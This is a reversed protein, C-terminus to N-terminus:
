PELSPRPGTGDTCGSHLCRCLGNLWRSRGLAKIHARTCRSFLAQPQWLHKGFDTDTTSPHSRQWNSKFDRVKRRRHRPLVPRLGRLLCLLTVLLPATSAASAQDSNEALGEDMPFSDLALPVHVPVTFIERPESRDSQTTVKPRDCKGRGHSRPDLSLSASRHLSRNRQPRREMTRFLSSSFSSEPSSSTTSSLPPPLLTASSSALSSDIGLSTVTAGFIFVDRTTTLPITPATPPAFVFASRFQPVSQALRLIKIPDSKRRARARRLEQQHQRRGRKTSFKAPPTRMTHRRRLQDRKNECYDKVSAMHSAFRARELYGALTAYREQSVAAAASEEFAMTSLCVAYRIMELEGACDAATLSPLEWTGDYDAEACTIHCDSRWPNRTYNRPSSDPASPWEIYDEYDDDFSSCDSFSDSYYRRTEVYQLWHLWAQGLVRRNRSLRFDQTSSRPLDCMFFWSSSDSDSSDEVESSYPSRQWRDRYFNLWRYWASELVRWDRVTIRSAVCEPNNLQWLPCVPLFEDDPVAFYETQPVTSEQTCVPLPSCIALVPPQVSSQTPFTPLALRSMEDPSAMLHQFDAKALVQTAFGRIAAIVDDLQQDSTQPTTPYLRILESMLAGEKCHVKTKFGLRWGCGSADREPTEFTKLFIAEIPDNLPKVCLMPTRLIWHMELWVNGQVPAGNESRAITCHVLVTRPATVNPAMVPSEPRVHGQVSQCDPAGNESRASACHLSAHPMNQPM